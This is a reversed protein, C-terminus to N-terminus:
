RKVIRRFIMTFLLGFSLYRLLAALSLHWWTFHIQPQQTVYSTGLFASLTSIQSYWCNGIFEQISKSNTIAVTTGLLLLLVLTSLILNLPYEGYGWGWRQVFLWFSEWRVLLYNYPNRKFGYKEYFYAEKAERAKRYYEQRARMEYRFYKRVSADDGVSAANVRLSQLLERQANPWPPLNVLAEETPIITGRFASYIFDCRSFKASRLNCDVLRAGIFKCDTFTAKYFYARTFLCYSFDCNNFEVGRAGFDEFIFHQFSQNQVPGDISCKKIQLNESNAKVKLGFVESPLSSNRALADPQTM